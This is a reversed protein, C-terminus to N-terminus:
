NPVYQDLVIRVTAVTFAGGVRVYTVVAEANGQWRPTSPSTGPTVTTGHLRVTATDPSTALGATRYLTIRFNGQDDARTPLIVGGVDRARDKLSYFVTVNPMPQGTADVVTGVVLACATPRPRWARKIECADPRPPALSDSYPVACSALFALLATSHASVKM